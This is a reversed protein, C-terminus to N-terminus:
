MKSVDANDERRKDNEVEQIAGMKKGEKTKKRVPIHNNCMLDCLDELSEAIFEAGM